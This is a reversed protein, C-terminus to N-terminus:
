PNIAEFFDSCNWVGCGGVRSGKVSLQIAAGNDLTIILVREATVSGNGDSQACSLLISYLRRAEDGQIVDQGTLSIATVRSADPMVDAFRESDLLGSGALSIRQYLRLGDSGNCVILARDSIGNLSYVNTGVEMDKSVVAEFSTTPDGVQAQITTVIGGLASADPRVDKILRYYRGDWRILGNKDWLSYPNDKNKNTVTVQAGKLSATENHVGDKGASVVNFDPAVSGPAQNLEGPIVGKQGNLSLPIVVALVLAFSIAIALGRVPLKRKATPAQASMIRHRLAPGAELGSLTENAIERLDEVRKM